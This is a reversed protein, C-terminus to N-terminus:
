ISRPCSTTLCTATRAGSLEVKNRRSPPVSALPGDADDISVSADEAGVSTTPWDPGLPAPSGSVISIAEGSGGAAAVSRTSIDVGAVWRRCVAVRRGVGCPNEQRAMAPVTAMTKTRANSTTVATSSIEPLGRDVIKPPAAVPVETFFRKLGEDGGAVGVDVVVVVPLDVEVVMCVVAVLVVLVVAAFPLASVVVVGVVADVVVM